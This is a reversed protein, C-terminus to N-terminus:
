KVCFGADNILTINDKDIFITVHASSYAISGFTIMWPDSRNIVDTGARRTQIAFPVQKRPHIHYLKRSLKWRTITWLM